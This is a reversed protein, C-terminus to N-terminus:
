ARVLVHWALWDQRLVLHRVNCCAQKTLFPSPM